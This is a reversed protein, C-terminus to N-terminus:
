AQGQGRGGLETPRVRRVELPRRRRAADSVAAPRRVRRRRRPLRPLQQVVREGLPGPLPRMQVHECKLTSGIGAFSARSSVVQVQLVLPRVHALTQDAARHESLPVASRDGRGSTSCQM